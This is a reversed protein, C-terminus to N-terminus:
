PWLRFTVASGCLFLVPAGREGFRVHASFSPRLGVFAKADASVFVEASQGQSSVMSFSQVTTLEDLEGGCGGEGAAVAVV